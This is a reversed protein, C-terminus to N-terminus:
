LFVNQLFNAVPNPPDDNFSGGGRRLFFSVVWYFGFWVMGLLLREHVGCVVFFYVELCEGGM